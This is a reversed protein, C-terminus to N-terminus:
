ECRLGAVSTGGGCTPDTIHGVLPHWLHAAGAYPMGICWCRTLANVRVVVQTKAAAAIVRRTQMQGHGGTFADTHVRLKIDAGTMLSGGPNRM